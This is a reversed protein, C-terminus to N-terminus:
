EFSQFLAEFHVSSMNFYSSCTYMGPFTITSHPEGQHHQQGPTVGLFFIKLALCFLNFFIIEELFEFSNVFT